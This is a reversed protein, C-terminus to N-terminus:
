RAARRTPNRRSNRKAVCRGKAKGRKARHRGKPCRKKGGAPVNGAGRFTSSSPVAAAPAPPPSQCAEGVCPPKPLAPPPFGGGIRADYIDVQGPDQVLLSQATAFFVDTGSRDADVFSSDAPSEGSSILSLCGGARAVFREAGLGECQTAGSAREWEYVDQKGNTDRPLLADTTDFFIRSGDESIARPAHLQNEARPIEAAVWVETPKAGYFFEKGVPRAGTPNCSVCDLGEGAEYTYIEAAPEGSNADTNDYGLLSATSMFVLHRGDPTVRSFHGTSEAAVPSFTRAADAAVLTTVFSYNPASETAEYFYLNPEGAAASQGEANPEGTLVKQSLFYIRSADESSGMVGNAEEAILTSAEAEADYIYLNGKLGGDAVSFIAKSGDTSAGWFQAASASVTDSVPVSCPASAKSCEAGAGLPNQRLYLHGTGGGNATWYVRSGDDSVANDVLASRSDQSLGATGASCGGGGVSGGGPLVCILKPSKGDGRSAYALYTNFPVDPANSTLADDARFVTTSGDASAAQLELFFQVPEREPPQTTTVASYGAGGCLDRQYLNAFGAPAGPALPPDSDHMLWGECLDPSFAKFEVDLTKSGGLISIGRPPSISHSQWGGVDRDAIYQSIYPASEANEGFARYSSYTLRGGDIAAVDLEARIDGSNVAGFIDAGEKDIPSVMEYARCDPLYAALGGRFSANPCSDPPLVRPSSPTALIREPGNTPAILPNQAVLRYHYTTGLELPFVFASEAQLAEGSGFDITGTTRTHPGGFGGESQFHADDVYQFHATVPIGFPNVEAHLRASETTVETAWTGGFELSPRTEFPEGELPSNGEGATNEAFVRFRYRTEPQLCEGAEFATEGAHGEESLPDQCGVEESAPHLLFDEVGLPTPPGGSADEFCEGGNGVDEECISEEVYEFRISTAEGEPNVEANLTARTNGVPDAVVTPPSVIPGPPPPPFVQIGRNLESGYVTGTASYVDLAEWRTTGDIEGYGYRALIVGSSDWETITESQRAFLHDAGDVGIASVEAGADLTYLENGGSDFKRVGVSGENYTVYLSESSDVALRVGTSGVSELEVAAIFAGSPSFKEVRKTFGEFGFPGNPINDLVYVTGGPGVAIGPNPLKFQGDGEGESGFELLKNGEHDFKVIRFGDVVYLSRFSSSAPDGDMAIQGPNTLESAGFEKLFAGSSSFVNIRHNGRDAVFVDGNSEDVAVGVPNSCQGPESGPLCFRQAAAAPAAMLAVFAAVVM